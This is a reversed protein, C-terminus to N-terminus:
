PGFTNAMMNWIDSYNRDLGLTWLAVGGFNQQNAFTFRTQLMRNDAIWVQHDIGTQKDTFWCWTEKSITDWQCQKPQLDTDERARAYSIVAAYSDPSDAPYTSSKITSGNAVAWEWGYTPIGMVLKSKPIYKLYDAYTTTVDFFYKGEKFGNMPAVPGAITSTQGYYDYSMGIFRDYLPALKTFDFLDKTRASLPMISLALEAQPNQQKLQTALKNSFFTFETQLSDDAEGSYEFDINIGDLNETKVQKLIDSILNQQATNDNLISEITQNDQAAVTVTIKAGMIRSKTIFDKTSQQTWGNWGPDTQGNTITAIHGDPEVSLSFYNLESLRNPSINQIQDLRWYPLFGIVYKKYSTQPQLLHELFYLATTQVPTQPYTHSFYFWGLIGIVIVIFIFRVLYKV